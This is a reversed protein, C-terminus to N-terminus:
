NRGHQFFHFLFPHVRTSMKHNPNTMIAKTLDVIIRRHCDELPRRFFSFMTITLLHNIFGALWHFIRWQEVAKQGTRHNNGTHIFYQIIVDLESFLSFFLQRWSRWTFGFDTDRIFPVPGKSHLTLWQCLHTSKETQQGFITSLELMSQAFLLM